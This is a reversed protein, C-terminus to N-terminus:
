PVQEGSLSARGLWFGLAAVLSLLLTGGIVALAPIPTVAVTATHVVTTLAFYAVPTFLAGGFVSWSRPFGIWYLLRCALAFLGIGLVIEM